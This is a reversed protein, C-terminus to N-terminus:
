TVGPYVLKSVRSKCMFYINTFQKWGKLFLHFHQLYVVSCVVWTHVYACINFTMCFMMLNFCIILQIFESNELWSISCKHVPVKQSMCHGFSRQVIKNTPWYCCHKSSGVFVFRHRAQQQMRVLFFEKWLWKNTKACLIHGTRWFLFIMVVKGVCM